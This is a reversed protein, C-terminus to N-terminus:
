QRKRTRKVKASANRGPLPHRGATTKHLSKPRTQLISRPKSKSTTPAMQVAPVNAAASKFQFSPEWVTVKWEDDFRQTFRCEFDRWFWPTTVAQLAWSQQVRLCRTVFDNVYASIPETTAEDCYHSEDSPLEMWRPGSKRTPATVHVELAGLRFGGLWLPMKFATGDADTTVRALNLCGYGYLAGARSLSETWPSIAAPVSQALEWLGNGAKDRLIVRDCRPFMNLAWDELSTGPRLLEDPKGSYEIGLLALNLASLWVTHLLPM